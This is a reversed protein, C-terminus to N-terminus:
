NLPYRAASTMGWSRFFYRFRTTFIPSPMTRAPLRAALEADSTWAALEEADAGLGLIAVGVFMAASAVVVPSHLNRVEGLIQHVTQLAGNGQATPQRAFLRM